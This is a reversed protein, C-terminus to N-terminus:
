LRTAPTRRRRRRFPLTTPHWVARRPKTIFVGRRRWVDKPRIDFVRSSSSFSRGSILECRDRRVPRRRRFLTEFSVTGLIHPKISVTKGKYYVFYRVGDDYRNHGCVRGGGGGGRGTEGIHGVTRPRFRQAQGKRGRIGTNFWFFQGIRSVPRPPTRKSTM